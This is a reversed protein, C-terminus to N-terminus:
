SPDPRRPGARFPIVPRSEGPPERRLRDLGAAHLLIESLRSGVGPSRLLAALAKLGRGAVRPAPKRPM